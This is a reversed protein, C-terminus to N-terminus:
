GHGNRYRRRAGTVFPPAAGAVAREIEAATSLPVRQRAKGTCPDYTQHFEDSGSVLHEGDILLPLTTSM